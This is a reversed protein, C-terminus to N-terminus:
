AYGVSGDEQAFAQMPWTIKVGDITVSRYPPTGEEVFMSISIPYHANCKFWREFRWGAKTTLEIKLDESHKLVGPEILAYRIASVAALLAPTGM